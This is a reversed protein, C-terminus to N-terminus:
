KAHLKVGEGEMKIEIVEGSKLSKQVDIIRQNSSGRFFLSMDKLEEIFRGDVLVDIYSLFEKTVSSEKYMKDMIEKDFM